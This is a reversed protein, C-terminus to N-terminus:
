KQSTKVRFATTVLQLALADATDSTMPVHIPVLKNGALAYLIMEVNEGKVDVKSSQIMPLEFPPAGELKIRVTEGEALVSRGRREVSGHRNLSVTQPEAPDDSL